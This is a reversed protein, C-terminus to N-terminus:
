STPEPAIAPMSEFLDDLSSIGAFEKEAMVESTRLMVAEILLAVIRGIDESRQINWHRLVARAEAADGFCGIAFDRVGACLQRATVQVGSRRSGFARQQAFRVADGVFFFADIPYGLNRAIIAYPKRSPHENPNEADEPVAPASWLASRLIAQGCEPCNRGVLADPLELGCRTCRLAERHRNRFPQTLHRVLYRLRM